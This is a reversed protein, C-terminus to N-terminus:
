GDPGDVTDVVTDVVSDVADGLRDLYDEANWSVTTGDGHLEIGLVLEPDVEFHVSREAGLGMARLREEVEHRLDPDPDFATRVTTTPAEGSGQALVARVADAAALHDLGRRVVLRELDAGALDALTSRSVAIVEEATRRRLERHLEDKEAQLGRTWRRREEDVETRAEDLLQQRHRHADARADAVLERREREFGDVLEQYEEETALAQAERHEADHVRSAIAEERRDIADIVRDYLFRKLAWALIAFNVIQALVTFPDILV